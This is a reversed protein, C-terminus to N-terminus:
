RMIKRVRNKDIGMEEAISAASKGSGIILRGIEERYEPSYKRNNGAMDRDEEAWIVMKGNADIERCMGFLIRLHHTVMTSM